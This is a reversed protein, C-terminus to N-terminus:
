LSAGSSSPRNTKHRWFPQAHMEELSVTSSTRSTSPRSIPRMSRSSYRLWDGPAFAPHFGPTPAINDYVPARLFHRPIPLKLLPLSSSLFPVCKPFEPAHPHCCSVNKRETELLIRASPSRYRLADNPKDLQKPGGTM